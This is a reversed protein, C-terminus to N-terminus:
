RGAQLAERQNDFDGAEVFDVLAFLTDDGDVADVEEDALPLDEAQEAGVARALRGGDADTGGPGERGGALHADGAGVHDGLGRQRPAIDAHHRLVVGEVAGEADKLIEKKVAAVESEAGGVGLDAGVLQKFLEQERFAAFAM